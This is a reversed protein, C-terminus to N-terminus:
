ERVFGGGTPSVKTFILDKVEPLYITLDTGPPCTNDDIIISNPRYYWSLQNANLKKLIVMGWGVMCNTGSYSLYLENNSPRTGISYLENMTINNNKTDQLVTGSTTKIVYKVIIVDRYFNKKVRKELKNEQKTFYLTIKKNDFNAEYTGVYASLENNLDKVYANNPIDDLYTNLPLIQAKCSIISFIIFCFLLTQLKLNKMIKLTQVNQQRQQIAM